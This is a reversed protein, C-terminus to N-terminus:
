RNHLLAIFGCSLVQLVPLTGPKANEHANNRAKAKGCLIKKALMIYKSYQISSGCYQCYLRYVPSSDGVESVFGYWPGKMNGSLTGLYLVM